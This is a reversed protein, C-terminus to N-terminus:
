PQKEKLAIHIQHAAEKLCQAIEQRLLRSDRLDQAEIRAAGDIDLLLNALSEITAQLPTAKLAQRAETIIAHLHMVTKDRFIPLDGSENPQLRKSVRNALNRIETALIRQTLNM